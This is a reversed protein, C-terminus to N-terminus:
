SLKICLLMYFPSFVLNAIVSIFLVLIYASHCLICHNRGFSFTPFVPSSAWALGLEYLPHSTLMINFVGSASEALQRAQPEEWSRTLFNEVRRSSGLVTALFHQRSPKFSLACKVSKGKSNATSILSLHQANLAEIGLLQLLYLIGGVCVTSQVKKFLIIPGCYIGYGFDPRM